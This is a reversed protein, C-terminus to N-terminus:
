LDFYLRIKKYKKQDKFELNHYTASKLVNRILHKSPDFKEGFIKYNMRYRNDKFSFNVKLMKGVIKKCEFVWIISNAFKIILDELSDEDLFNREVLSINVNKNEVILDFISNGLNEFLDSFFHGRVEIGLDGTDDLLVYKM